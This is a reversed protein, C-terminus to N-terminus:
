SVEAVCFTSSPSRSGKMSAERLCPTQHIGRCQDEVHVAGHDVGHAVVLLAPHSKGAPMANINFDIVQHAAGGAAGCGFAHVFQKLGLEAGLAAQGQRVFFFGQVALQKRRDKAFHCAEGFKGCAAPRHAQFDAHARGSVFVINCKSKRMQLQRFCRMGHHAAIFAQRAFGLRGDKQLGGPAHADLRGFADNKFVCRKANFRRAAGAHPGYGQVECLATSSVPGWTIALTRM